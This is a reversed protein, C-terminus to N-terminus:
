ILELLTFINETASSGSLFYEAYPERVTRHGKM